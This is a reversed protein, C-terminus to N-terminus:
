DADTAPRDATPPTRGVIPTWGSPLDEGGAGDTCRCLRRWIAPLGRIGNARVEVEAFRSCSPDFVCRAGVHHPRVARYWRIPLVLLRRVLSRPPPLRDVAEDMPTAGRLTRLIRVADRPAVDLQIADTDVGTLLPRDDPFLPDSM